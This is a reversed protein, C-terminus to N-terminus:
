RWKPYSRRPAPRGNADPSGDGEIRAARIAAWLATLESQMTALEHTRKSRDIRPDTRKRQIADALANAKRMLEDAPRMPTELRNTVSAPIGAVSRDDVQQIGHV